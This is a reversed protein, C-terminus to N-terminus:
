HPRSAPTDGRKKRLLASIRGLAMVLGFTALVGIIGSIVNSLFGHLGPITYDPLLSIESDRAKNTFGLKGAVRELGDPNSSAFWSVVGATVLSVLLMIVVFRKM